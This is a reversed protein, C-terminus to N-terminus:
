EEKKNLKSSIVWIKKRIDHLIQIIEGVAYTFLFVIIGLIWSSILVIMGYNFHNDFHKKVIIAGVVGVVICLVLLFWSVSKIMLSLWHNDDVIFEIKKNRESSMICM